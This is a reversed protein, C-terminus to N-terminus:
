DTEEPPDETTGVVVDIIEDTVTGDQDVTITEEEVVVFSGTSPPSSGTESSARPSTPTIIEEIIETLLAESSPADRPDRSRISASPAEEVM